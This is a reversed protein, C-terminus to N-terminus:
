GFHTAIRQVHDLLTTIYRFLCLKKPHGNTNWKVNEHSTIATKRQKRWSLNFDSRLYPYLLNLKSYNTSLRRGSSNCRNMTGHFNVASITFTVLLCCYNLPGDAWGSLGDSSFSTTEEPFDTAGGGSAGGFSWRANSCPEPVSPDRPRYATGL